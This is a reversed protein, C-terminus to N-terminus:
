RIEWMERSSVLYIEWAVLDLDVIWQDEEPIVETYPHDRCGEEWYLGIIGLLQVEDVRSKYDIPQTSGDVIITEGWM